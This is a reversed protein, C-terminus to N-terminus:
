YPIENDNYPTEDEKEEKQWGIFDALGINGNECLHLDNIRVNQFVSGVCMSMISNVATNKGTRMPSDFVKGCCRCKYVAKYTDKMKDVGTIKSVFHRM